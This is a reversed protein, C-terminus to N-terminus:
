PLVSSTHTFSLCVGLTPRSTPYLLIHFASVTSSSYTTHAAELLRSRTNCLWGGRGPGKLKHIICVSTTLRLSLLTTAASNLTYTIYVDIARSFESSCTSRRNPRRGRLMTSRESSSLMAEQITTPNTCSLTMGTDDIELSAQIM